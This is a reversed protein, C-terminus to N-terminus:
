TAVGNPVASTSDCPSDPPVAVSLRLRGTAHLIWEGTGAAARSAIRVNAGNESSPTLCLQLTYHSDPSFCLAQHIVLGDELRGEVGYAERGAEVVMDILDTAAIRRVSGFEYNRMGPGLETQWYHAGGHGSLPVYVQLLPHVLEVRGDRETRIRPPAPNAVRSAPKWWHRKRQWAYQPLSACRAGLPTWRDFDVAAGLEYLRAVSELLCTRQPEASRLVSIAVPSTAGSVSLISELTSIWSSDPGIELFTDHREQRMQAIAAEFRGACEMRQVWHRPDLDQGDCKSGKAASFWGISGVAPRVRADSDLVLRVADELTLVGAVHAAVIEGLGAGVVSTPRIGRSELWVTLAVDLAFGCARARQGGTEADGFAKLSVSLGCKAFERLCAEVSERLAPEAGLLDADVGEWALACPSYVFALKRRTSAPAISAAGDAVREELARAIAERSRGVVAWRFRHQSRRVRATDCVDALRELDGADARLLACYDKSMEVLAAPCRASVPLLELDGLEGSSSSPLEAPAEHGELVVHANAGGFGFASVGAIPPGARDPWLTAHSVFRLGLADFDLESNPKSFHLSPPIVGHHMAMAVKILSAIGSAAELHGINSKISGILCPRQAPRDASLAHGLARLEIIDGLPTGTGHGEIYDIEQPQIDADRHAAALLEQQALRSPAMLGNTRGNQNVASGRLLAYIRDGDSRARSLSKLVVVGAGEGRVLGDAAADFPKCRGSPSTVGTKSHCIVVEPIFMLNVGGVIALSSEGSRLSQSALHIAVLSSSCSTDVSISPGRAGLFYSIRNAAIASTNGTTEYGTFCAPGPMLTYYDKTTIGVFVGTATEALSEPVVGSDELADWTLELLLRQQPDLCAAEEESLWFFDADFRDADEIFGGWRSNTTGPRKLEPDYVADPDWRDRPTETIADTGSQLLDWLGRLHNAGPFRCAMGVIALPERRDSEIM